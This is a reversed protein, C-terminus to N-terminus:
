WRVMGMLCVTKTQQGLALHPEMELPSPVSRVRFSLPTTVRAGPGRGADDEPVMTAAARSARVSLLSLM